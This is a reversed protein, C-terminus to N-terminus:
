GRSLRPRVAGGGRAPAGADVARGGRARAPESRCATRRSLRRLRYRHAQPRRGGCRHRGRGPAPRPPRRRRRGRRAVAGAARRGLPAIRRAVVLLGGPATGHRSRRLRCLRQRLAFCDGRSRRRRPHRGDLAAAIENHSRRGDLLRLLDGYLGGHLLTDFSESVLLTQREDIERFQLHPTLAPLEVLGEDAPTTKTLIGRRPNRKTQTPM